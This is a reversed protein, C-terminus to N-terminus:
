AGNARAAKLPGSFWVKITKVEYAGTSIYIENRLVVLPTGHQGTEMLDIEVACVPEESLTVRVESPKGEYEYFRLILAEDDEAKKVVTLIVNTPELSIFSQIAPWPGRHASSVIPISPFNVEYAQRMSGGTKWDGKHPYLAYTFSHVGEDARPDPWAPSRLLTLRITSGRADYGYKSTNLITLGRDSDSLDGWRLAPVEFKAKDEPTLHTTSRQITGYPIEYTASPNKVAVPFAAKLLIHREKWDVQMHIEIRPIGAYLCIDQVIVSNRFRKRIKVIARVPGTEPVTIDEIEKLDWGVREYDSDINWADYKKPEDVFAQLLNALGGEAIIDMQDAKNVVSTICGTTPDITVRLYENELETKSAKLPTPLIKPESAAFPLLDLVTYGLPPLDTALVRLKVRDALRDQCVIEALLPRGLSDRVSVGATIAQPLQADIIIPESRVWSLPNFIVVPVGGCTTNVRATITHLARELAKDVTLNLIELDRRTEAFNMAISTGPMTDHFQNLLLSKWCELLSNQPYFDGLRLAWSAFKETNLLAVESHRIQKKVESQTTYTGRHFELYLENNWVPLTDNRHRLRAQVDDFFSQATCFCIKPVSASMNQLQLARDLVARADGGADDGVWYLHMIVPLDTAPVNKAIAGAIGRMGIDNGYGQPFYTLLRSGDPSEWWFLKYPFQTTDNWSLKQTVFYDIGSKKCLQPLQWSFGFCDLNWGIRVDVGFKKLFYRKGTLLQRVLSEGDPMNLDPEVWMGGVIEWRGDKVREQIREFLDPYSREIWEFHQASCQSYTLDPYENMLQLVARFDDRLLELTEARPRLWATDIHSHAVARVLFANTWERLGRLQEMAANLSRTFKMQDGQDLAAFDVIAAAAELEHQGKVSTQPFAGLLVQMSLIEEKVLGPDVQGPYDILLDAGCFRFTKSGRPTLQVAVLFRSGPVARESVLIPALDRVIGKSLGVLVGNVFVRTNPFEEIAEPVIRLSLSLRAGQISKGGVMLPITIATRYWGAASVATSKDDPSPTSKTTVAQWESDDLSPVEGHRLESKSLRWESIPIFTMAHLRDIVTRYRDIAAM